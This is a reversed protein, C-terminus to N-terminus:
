GPLRSAGSSLSVVLPGRDSAFGPWHTAGTLSGLVCSVTDLCASGLFSEGGPYRVSRVNEAVFVFFHRFRDPHGCLFLSFFVLLLCSWTPANFRCARAWLHQSNLSRAPSRRSRAPHSAGPDCGAAALHRLAELTDREGGGPRKNKSRADRLPRGLPLSDETLGERSRIRQRSILAELIRENVSQM